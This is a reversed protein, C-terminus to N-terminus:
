KTITKFKRNLGIVSRNSQALKILADRSIVHGCNLRMPPNQETSQQVEALKSDTQSLAISMRFELAPWVLPSFLPAYRPDGSEKRARVLAGMLHATEKEYGLGALRRSFQMAEMRREQAILEVMHQKLLDFRLKAERPANRELWDVAPGVDRERLASMIAEIEQKSNLYGDIRGGLGAEKVLLEAIAPQGCSMLYDCVLGNVLRQSKADGELDKENRILGGMEKHMNRDIEKGVQSVAHHVAKHQKGVDGAYFEARAVTQELLVQATVSLESNEPDLLLEKELLRASSGLKGLNGTWTTLFSRLSAEVRELSGDIASLSDSMFVCFFSLSHSCNVSTLVRHPNLAVRCTAKVIIESPHARLDRLFGNASRRLTYPSLQHVGAWM